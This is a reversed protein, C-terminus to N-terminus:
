LARNSDISYGPLWAHVWARGNPYAHQFWLPDTGRGSSRPLATLTIGPEFKFDSLSAPVDGNRRAADRQIDKPIVHDSGIDHPRRLVDPQFLRNGGPTRSDLVITTSNAGVRTLDFDPKPLLHLLLAQLVQQDRQDAVASPSSYKSCSCTSLVFLLVAGSAMLCGQFLRKM